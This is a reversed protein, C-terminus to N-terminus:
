EWQSLRLFYKGLALRKEGDSRLTKYHATFENAFAQMEDTTRGFLRRVEEDISAFGGFSTERQPPPQPASVRAVPVVTPPRAWASMVPVPASVYQQQRVATKEMRKAEIKKILALRAPCQSWTAPHGKQKCQFCFFDAFVNQAKGKDDVASRKVVSCKHSAGKGECAKCARPRTCGGAMSHGFELCNHCQTVPQKHMQEWKPVAYCIRPLAMIARMLEKSEAKVILLPLKRGLEKSKYTELRDVQFDGGELLTGKLQDRIEEAVEEQSYEVPINKLMRREAREESTMYSHYMVKDEDLVGKAVTKQQEPVNLVARKGQVRFDPKIGAGLLKPVLAKVNADVLIIPVSKAKKPAPTAEKGAVKTAGQPASPAALAKEKRQVIGKKGVRLPPFEPSVNEEEEEAMEIVPDVTLGGFRNALEVGQPPSAARRRKSVTRETVVRFPEANPFRQVMSERISELKHLFASVQAESQGAESNMLQSTAKAWEVFSMPKVVGEEPLVMEGQTGSAM